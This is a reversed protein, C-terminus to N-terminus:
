YNNEGQAALGALVLSASARLDTAVVVAGMLTEVGECVATNGKLFIHAGMRRLEEVHMFRHEFITETIASTGQAISNVAMMQAQMDTPFAPYPATKLSVARPRRGQMSLTIWDPGTVIDAGAEQLKLLVAQVTDARTHKLKISGGTICAAALYTSTEIRDPMVTYCKGQLDGLAEVGDIVITATGAGQIKAGQANLFNALDVIEPECAAHQIVTRGAALCAAMMINQTGNVTILDMVIHAGHLRNATAKIYGQDIAITAGLSRLGKLHQDIPRTGIQCGGPFSVRARGFRALLPGLVLISARMTSVLEYPAYFANVQSADIEIHAHEDLTVRVGLQGLLRVMTTVDQLHPINSIKVPASSLLSAALIPLVANKAGSIRVEGQLARGGQIILQEM